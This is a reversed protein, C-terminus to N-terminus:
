WLQPEEELPQVTTTTTQQWHEHVSEGWHGSKSCKNCTQDRAPCADRQHNSGGCFFCSQGQQGRPQQSRHSSTAGSAPKHTSTHSQQMSAITAEGGGFALSYCSLMHLRLRTHWMLVSLFHSLRQTTNWFNRGSPSTTPARSSKTLWSTM